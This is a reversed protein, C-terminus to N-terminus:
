MKDAQDVGIICVNTKATTKWEQAKGKWGMAMYPTQLLLQM